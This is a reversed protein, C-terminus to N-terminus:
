ERRADQKDLIHQASRGQQEGCDHQQPLPKALQEACSFSSPVPSRLEVQAGTHPHVFSLAEAHLMMRGTQRRGYLRDGVIPTGLGRRHAAHVRLQHTRGTLPYFYVLTTGGQGAAPFRKIVEYRTTAALGNVDDVVQMPRSDYDPRLPLEMTGSDAQPLGDLMAVYRKTVERGAFMAQLLRHTAKDRALLVIGSTDMDLRHAAEIGPFRRRLVDLLSEGCNRGPVTPMGAPKDAAIIWEDEYIIKVDGDNGTTGTNAYPPDIEMGLGQLMFSLIPLCKGRCAPYFVGDHRVVGTQPSGYWFEAIALPRLEHLYAYQLLRPAACDGAGAPPVRQPTDAFIEILDRREGRANLMVFQSFAWQQLAESRRKREEKLRGIRKEIAELPQRAAATREDWAKRLRRLEAKQFQSERILADANACGTARTEERRAKAQAMMRRFNGIEDAAAAEARAAADRADALERSEEIATIEHNIQSIEGEERKFYGDVDLLDFVPPVFYMGAPSEISGSYAALFGCRGGDAEVVVLVGLMKGQALEACLGPQSAVYRRVQGAALVALPHPEYNFPSNLRGPLAIESIDSDFLHFEEMTGAFTAIKAM